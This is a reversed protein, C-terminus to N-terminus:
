IIPEGKVFLGDFLLLVTKLPMFELFLPCTFVVELVGVLVPEIAFVSGWFFMKFNKEDKPNM